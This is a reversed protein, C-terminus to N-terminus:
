LTGQPVEDSLVAIGQDLAFRAHRVEDTIGHRVGFEIMWADQERNVREIVAKLADIGMEHVKLQSMLALKKYHLAEYRLLEIESLKVVRSPIRRDREADVGISVGHKLQQAPQKGSPRSGIGSVGNGGGATRDGQGGVDGCGNEAGVVERRTDDHTM